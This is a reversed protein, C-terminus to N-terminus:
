KISFELSVEKPADHKIKSFNDDCDKAVSVIM